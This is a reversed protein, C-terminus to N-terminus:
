KVKDKIETKSNILQIFKQLVKQSSLSKILSKPKVRSDILNNTDLYFEHDYPRFINLLKM